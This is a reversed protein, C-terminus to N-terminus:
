VRLEGGGVMEDNLVASYLESIRNLAIDKEVQPVTNNEKWRQFLIRLEELIKTYDM